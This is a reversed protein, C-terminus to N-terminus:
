VRKKAFYFPYLLLSVLADLMYVSYLPITILIARLKAFIQQSRDFLINLLMLVMFTFFALLLYDYAHYAVALYAMYTIVLPQLVLLLSKLSVGPLRQALRMKYPIANATIVVTEGFALQNLIGRKKLVNHFARSDNIVKKFDEKLDKILSKQYIAAHNYTSVTKDFRNAKKASLDLRERTQQLLGGVTDNHRIQINPLLATVGTNQALYQNAQHLSTRQLTGGADMVLLWDSKAHTKVAQLIATSRDSQKSRAVLRISKKPNDAVFARVAAVTCDTSGNDVIILRVNRYSQKVVSRLSQEIVGASNHSYIIIDMYPRARNRASQAKTKPQRKIAKLKQIDKVSARGFNFLTSAVSEAIILFFIVYM